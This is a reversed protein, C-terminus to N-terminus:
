HDGQGERTKKILAMINTNSVLTLILLALAMSYWQVAYGVHKQPQTNVVQWDTVLAAPSLENINVVTNILPLDSQKSMLAIDIQNIRKPWGSDEGSNEVLRNKSPQYISGIVIQRATLSELKPLESRLRPAPLWGRNILVVGGSDLVYPTIVEYGVRGSRMRNDLLWQHNQDFHGTATIATYNDLELSSSLEVPALLLRQKHMELLQQKEAARDLQWNGLLILVPLLILSLILIRYNPTLTLSVKTSSSPSTVETIM